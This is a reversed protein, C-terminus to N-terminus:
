PRRCAASGARPAAHQFWCPCLLSNNQSACRPSSCVQSVACRPQCFFALSLRWLQRSPLLLRGHRALADAADSSRGRGRDMSASPRWCSDRGREGREGGRCPHLLRTHRPPCLGGAGGAGRSVGFGVPRRRGRLCAFRASHSACCPSPAASRCLLRRGGREKSAVLSALYTSSMRCSPRSQSSPRRPSRLPGYRRKVAGAATRRPRPVGSLQLVPEPRPMPFGVLARYRTIECRVVRRVAFRCCLEGRQHTSIKLICEGTPHPLATAAPATPLPRSSPLVIINCSAVLM